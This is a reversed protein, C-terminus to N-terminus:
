DADGGSGAYLAWAGFLFGVGVFIVGLDNGYVVLNLAGNAAFLVAMIGLALRVEGAM